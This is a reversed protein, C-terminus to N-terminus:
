GFPDEDGSIPEGPRPEVAKKDLMVVESAIIECVVRTQKERDEYKRYRIRGEVYLLSGKKVYRNILGALGRWAIVTHWQTDAQVRNDKLRYVETTALSLKVVPTGDALEKYEPDKGANGVLITKNIGRM